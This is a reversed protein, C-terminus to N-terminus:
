DFPGTPRTGARPVRAARLLELLEDHVLGNSYVLVPDAWERGGSLDTVRGGAEQVILVGPARDWLSGGEDVAAEVRAEALDGLLCVADAVWEAAGAVAPAVASRPELFGGIRAAGLSAAESVRVARTRPWRSGAASVHAGNGRSAWWRKRETPRTIIGITLVSDVELAIHTGWARGHALFPATGDIPDLIWRRGSGPHEGSEETLVSDGPREVALVDLLAAEVALDAESVPSGDPKALAPVGSGWWGLAIDSAVDALHHALELDAMKSM